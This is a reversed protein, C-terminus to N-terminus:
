HACLMAKAAERGLRVAYNTGRDWPYVQSMSAFLLGSLPTQLPPICRSHNVFPVPQAYVERFVWVRQVWSTDFAPNVRKLAPEFLARLEAASMSFYPHTPPLYDGCYILHQGGFHRAEAFNTHECLALFPFGARKPLNHWYYGKPSLPRDLAFIVMVAGLSVLANLRQTYREPLQPVLRTLARPSSTVLVRDFWCPEGPVIVRWRNEETRLAAVPTNYRIEGGLAQVRAALVDFFAQFGGEFTGLSPTRAKIRAWLWAMNVRDYLDGFKGELLPQWVARYAERGMWRLCWNHATFCELRRWDNTVFKLYAVALGFRIKAIPSLGPFRLVAQPSDLPYFAGNHYSVTLPRKFIVKDRVGVEDALRLIDKDTAFWHHYFYELSWDWNPERFGGALGGPAPKAEFVVVRHGARCLDYAAALGTAGAGIIAVNM